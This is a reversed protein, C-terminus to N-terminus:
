DPLPTPTGPGAKAWKADIARRAERLSMGSATLQKADLAIGVCTGCNAGHADLVVWGNRGVDRLFCDRNSEHPRGAGSQGCGCYCPMVDLVEPHAAAYAYAARTASDTRRIPAPWFDREPNAALPDSPRDQASLTTCSALLSASAAALFARRGLRSM